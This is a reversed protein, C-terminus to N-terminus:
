NFNTHSPLIVTFTTGKNVESEVKIQGTHLEIARKVIALGLGTGPIEGVNAARQFPEFLLEQYEPPIGIGQDQVQFCIEKKQCSLRLWVTSGQPSYKIANSLLNNLLHWVLKKDLYVEIFNRETSFILAHKRGITWQLNELLEQCFHVLELSAINCKFQYSDAKGLTLIDKLLQNMSEVADQICYLHQKKQEESLQHSRRRLTEAALNITSLPTRFEHSVMSLYQSKRQTCAQAEQQFVQAASLAKQVEVEAQHRSLAIEITAHLEKDKFPKLIYGFPSTIKAQHLTDEDAYATLYVVPINLQTRIQGAAETGDIDGSLMIDMLILDPQTTTAAVIAEEGSDVIEAAVYGMKELRSAIDEAVIAEDEVILIKIKSM